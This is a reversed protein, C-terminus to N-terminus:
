TSKVNWHCPSTFKKNTHHYIRRESIFGCFVCRKILIFLGLAHLRDIKDNMLRRHCMWVLLCYSFQAKFFANMLLKWKSICMIYPTIRALVHVKQSAKNIITELHNNFNLQSDIQAGFLKECYSNSITHEGIKITAPRNVNILLHCKEPNTKMQNNSFLEFLSASRSELSSVVNEHTAESVFPTNEDANSAFDIKELIFMDCMIINFLLLGLICGQPFGFLIEEWSSCSTNIKTRQQRNFLYSCIRRLTSLSFGYVNLKAVLLEHPLCDFAKSLDTFLARLLPM